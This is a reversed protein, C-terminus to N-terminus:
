MDFEIVLNKFAARLTFGSFGSGVSYCFAHNRDACPKDVLPLLM